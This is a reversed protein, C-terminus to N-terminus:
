FVSEDAGAGKDGDAAGGIQQSDPAPDGPPTPAAAPDGAAPAAAAPPTVAPAVGQKVAAPQAPARQAPQILTFGPITALRSAAADSIEDSVTGGKPHPKYKVGDIEEPHHEDKGRPNEYRVRAM